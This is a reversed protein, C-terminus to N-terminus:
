LSITGRGAVKSEEKAEPGIALRVAPEIHDPLSTAALVEVEAIMGTPTSPAERSCGSTGWSPREEPMSPAKFAM